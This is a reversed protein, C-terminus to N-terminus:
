LTFSLSLGSRAACLSHQAVAGAPVSANRRSDCGGAWEAGFSGGLTGWQQVVRGTFEANGGLWDLARM